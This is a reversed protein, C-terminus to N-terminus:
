ANGRVRADALATLRDLEASLEAHFAHRAASDADPSLRRPAGVILAGRSFPLPVMLRDWSPAQWHPRVAATVPVVARGTRGALYTAGPQLHSRPGRPGDAAIALSVSAELTALAERLVRAGSKGTSGRIPPIDLRDLATAILEGDGHLSVMAHIPRARGTRAQLAAWLRPVMLLRQHWFVGIGPEGRALLAVTDPHADFEWRGTAALARVLTAIGYGLAAAIRPRHLLRQRKPM